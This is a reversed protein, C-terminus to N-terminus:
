EFNGREEAYVLPLIRALHTFEKINHLTASRLISEQNPANEPLPSPGRVPRKDVVTWGLWFRTRLEVGGDIERIFHCMFGDGCIATGVNPSKFRKTDFGFEEPSIFIVDAELIPGMGVDETVHHKVGWIRERMPINPDLLRKRGEAGVQVDLHEDPDWIKYRLPHLGHWLFWWDFMEPTVEPMKVLNSVYGSGDPMVCYGYESALYGPNLLDNLDERKLADKPDIPGQLVRDVIAQDPRAMEMYYYKSYSLAKEEATLEKRQTVSLYEM